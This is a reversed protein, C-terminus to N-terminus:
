KKEKPLAWDIESDAKPPEMAAETPDNTTKENELRELRENANKWVIELNTMQTDFSTEPPPPPLNTETDTTDPIEEAM